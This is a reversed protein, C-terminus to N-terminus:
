VNERFTIDRYRFLLMKRKMRYVPLKRTMDSKTDEVVMKGNEFYVADAVYTIARETKGNIKFSEQLVFPVQFQLGAIKGAKELLQLDFGRKAEKKSDFKQGNIIVKQSHYKSAM